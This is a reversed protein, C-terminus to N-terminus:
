RRLLQPTRSDTAICIILDFFFISILFHSQKFKSLKKQKYVAEANIMLM